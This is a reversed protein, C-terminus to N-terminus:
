RAPLRDMWHPLRGARRAPVPLAAGATRSVTISNIGFVQMFFTPVQRTVQVQLSEDQIKGSVPDTYRSVTVTIGSVGVTFGNRKAAVIARDTADNGAGAPISDISLFQKPMFIVGALAASAAAREAGANYYYAIGGDIALGVAGFLVIIMFAILVIAQGLQGKPHHLRMLTKVAAGSSGSLRRVRDPQHQSGIRNPARLGM